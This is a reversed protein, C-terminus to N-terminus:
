EFQADVNLYRWSALSARHAPVPVGLLFKRPQPQRLRACLRPRFSRRRMGRPREGVIIRQRRLDPALTAARSGDNPQRQNRCRADADAGPKVVDKAGAVNEGAFVLRGSTEALVKPWM